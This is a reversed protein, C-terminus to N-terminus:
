YLYSILSVIRLIEADYSTNNGSIMGGFGHSKMVLAEQGGRYDHDVVKEGCSIKNEFKVCM